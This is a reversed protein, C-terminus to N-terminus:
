SSNDISSDQRLIEEWPGLFISSAPTIEGYPLVRRKDAFVLLNSLLIRPLSM